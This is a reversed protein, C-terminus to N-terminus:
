ILTLKCRVGGGREKPVTHHPIVFPCECFLLQGEHVSSLHWRLPAEGYISKEEKEGEPKPKDGFPPNRKTTHSRDIEMCYDIFTCLLTTVELTLYFHGVKLLPDCQLM